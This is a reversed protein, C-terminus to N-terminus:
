YTSGIKAEVLRAPVPAEEPGSGASSLEEQPAGEGYAQRLLAEGLDKMIESLGQRTRYLNQDALNELQRQAQQIWVQQRRNLETVMHRLFAERVQNETQEIQSELQALSQTQLDKSRAELGAVFRATNEEVVREMRQTLAQEAQQRRTSWLRTWEEMQGDQLQEAQTRCQEVFGKELAPLEQELNQQLNTRTASVLASAEQQLCENSSMILQALENQMVQHSTDLCEQQRNRATAEADELLKRVNQELLQQRSAVIDLANRELTESQSRTAVQIRQELRTLATTEIEAIREEVRAGMREILVPIRAQLASEVLENFIASLRDTAAAEGM